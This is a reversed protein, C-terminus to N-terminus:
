CSCPQFVQWGVCDLTPRIQLDEHSVELACVLVSPVWPVELVATLLGTLGEAPVNSAEGSLTVLERVDSVSIHYSGEQGLHGTLGQNM